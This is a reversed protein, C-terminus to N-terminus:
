FDPIGAVTGTKTGTEAEPNNGSGSMKYNAYVECPIEGKENEQSSKCKEECFSIRTKEGTDPCHKIFTKEKITSPNEQKQEPEKIATLLAAHAQRHTLGSININRTKCEAALIDPKDGKYWQQLESKYPDWIPKVITSDKKEKPNEEPEEDIDIIDRNAHDEIQTLAEEEAEIVESRMAALKLHKDDSSNIIPKCAHNIVTRRCMDAIFEDHVSGKKINGDKEVPHVPSKEWAKKIEEFTLLDTKIIEGNKDIVMCYAAKIKRSNVAEITQRHKVIQKRGKIIEYELTDAEYVPEAIIDDINEDVRKALAMSGFYSRQFALQKGYVIFYGQKKAPNLGTIVMDLLSNFISAKTCVELALNKDKDKTEQLILWASKLANQPSYDPPFHLEGGSQLAKIRKSVADITEDKIKAIQKQDTM